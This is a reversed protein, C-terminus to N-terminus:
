KSRRYLMCPDNRDACRYRQQVYEHMRDKSEDILRPILVVHRVRDAELAAITDTYHSDSKYGPFIIEHTTPNHARATLYLSAQVPYCFLLRDDTTDLAANVNQFLDVEWAQAFDVRGFRTEASHAFDIRARQLNTAM